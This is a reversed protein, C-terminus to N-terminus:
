FDRLQVRMLSRRFAVNDPARAVLERLGDIAAERDGRAEAWITEEFRQWLEIMDKPDKLPGHRPEAAGGVYGLARLREEVQPDPAATAWPRDDGRYAALRRRLRDADAPRETALNSRESPDAALDYLEPTPAEVYKLSGARWAHLSAWGLTQPLITEAYADAAASRGLLSAGELGSPAPIGLLELLTPLVDVTRALGARREGAPIGPGALILPIRLTSEYVFFGHTREGHDGRGEGHDALLAVVLRDGAARGAAAIADGACADAYAVEAEYPREPYEDRYPAPPHYPAHPDYLHVWAFFRGRQRGLWSAAARVVEECPRDSDLVSSGVERLEIDADYHDFGRALGFRADLVYAGVFAGTAWGRAQLLTALTERDAPFRHTGNNRAGHRPPELGGLITAHSPLTLPASAVAQEFLLGRRALADINPTRVDTAGYAGVRDARLTDVTVLLLSAGAAPARRCGPPCGLAAGAVV